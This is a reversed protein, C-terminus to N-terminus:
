NAFVGRDRTAHRPPGGGFLWFKPNEIMIKFMLLAPSRTFLILRYMRGSRRTKSQKLVRIYKISHSVKTSSPSSARSVLDQSLDNGQKAQEFSLSEFRQHLKATTVGLILM